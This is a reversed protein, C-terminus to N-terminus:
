VSGPLSCLFPVCIEVSRCQNTKTNEKLGFFGHEDTDSYEKQERGTRRFQAPVIDSPRSIFNERKEREDGMLVSWGAPGADM